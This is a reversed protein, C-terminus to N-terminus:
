GASNPDCSVENSQHARDYTYCPILFLKCSWRSFQFLSRTLMEPACCCAIYLCVRSEQVLKPGEHPGWNTCFDCIKGVKETMGEEAWCKRDFRYRGFM